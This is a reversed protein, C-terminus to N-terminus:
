KNRFEAYEREIYEKRKQKFVEKGFLKKEMM